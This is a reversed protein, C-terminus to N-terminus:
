ATTTTAVAQPWQVPPRSQRPSWRWPGWPLPPRLVAVGCGVVAADVAVAAAPQPGPRWPRSAVAPFAAPLVVAVVAAVAVAVAVVAARRGRRHGHRGPGRGRRLGRRRGATVGAAVTTALVVDAAVTAVFAAVAVADAVWPAAVSAVVALVRCHCGICYSPRLTAEVVTPAVAVLAGEDARGQRRLRTRSRAVEIARFVTRRSRRPSPPPAAGAPRGEGRAAPVARGDDGPRGGRAGRGERHGRGRPDGAARRPRDAAVVAPCARPPGLSLQTSGHSLRRPFRFHHTHYTPKWM